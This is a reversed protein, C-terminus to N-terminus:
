WLPFLNLPPCFSHLPDITHHHITVLSIMTIVEYQFQHLTIYWNQRLLIFIRWPVVLTSAAPWALGWSRGQQLRLVLIPTLSPSRLPHPWRVSCSSASSFQPPSTARKWAKKHIPPHPANMEQVNWLLSSCGCCSLPSFCQLLRDRPVSPMEPAQEFFREETTAVQPTNQKM